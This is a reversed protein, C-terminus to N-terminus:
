VREGKIVNQSHNAAQSSEHFLFMDSVVSIGGSRSDYLCCLFLLHTILLVANLLVSMHTYLHTM